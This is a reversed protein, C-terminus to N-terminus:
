AAKALTASTTSNAVVVSRSKVRAIRLEVLPVRKAETMKLALLAAADYAIGPALQRTVECIAIRVLREIYTTVPKDHNEWRSITEVATEGGISDSLARQTFGAIKRIAAVETGRLRQPMQCRALAAAASFEDLRRIAISPGGIDDKETFSMAADIVVVPLGILATADYRGITKGAPPHNKKM